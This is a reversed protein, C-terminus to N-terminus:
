GDKDAPRRTLRLFVFVAGAAFVLAAVVSGVTAPNARIYDLLSSDAPLARCEQKPLSQVMPDTVDVSLVTGEPCPSFDIEPFITDAFSTIGGILPGLATDLERMKEGDRKLQATQVEDLPYDYDQIKELLYSKAQLVQALQFQLQGEGAAVFAQEQGLANVARAMGTAGAAANKKIRALMEKSPPGASSVLDEIAFVVTGGKVGATMSIVSALARMRGAFARKGETNLSAALTEAARGLQASVERAMAAYDTEARAPALAALSLLLCLGARRLSARWSHTRRFHAPLSTARFSQAM